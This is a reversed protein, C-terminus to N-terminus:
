KLSLEKGPKPFESLTALVAQWVTTADDRRPCVGISGCEFCDRSVLVAEMTDWNLIYTGTYPPLVLLDEGWHRMDLVFAPGNRVCYFLLGTADCGGAAIGQTPTKSMRARREKEEEQTLPQVLPPQPENLLRFLSKRHSPLPASM